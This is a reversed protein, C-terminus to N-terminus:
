GRTRVPEPAWGAEQGTPVLCKKGQPYLPRAMFGVVWGWRTSFDLIRPAIGGSGICRWSTTSLILVPVVKIIIIIIIIIIYKEQSQYCVYLTNFLPSLELHKSVELSACIDVATWARTKNGIFIDRVHSTRLYKLNMSHELNSNFMRM